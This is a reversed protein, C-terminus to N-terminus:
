LSFGAAPENLLSCDTISGATRCVNRDAVSSSYLLNSGTKHHMHTLHMGPCPGAPMTGQLRGGQSSHVLMDVPIHGCLGFPKRMPDLTVHAALTKSNSSSETTFNGGIISPISGSLHNNDLDLEAIVSSLNSGPRFWSPPLSGACCQFSDSVSKRM